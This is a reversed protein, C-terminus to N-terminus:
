VLCPFFPFEMIWLCMKGEPRGMPDSPLYISGMGHDFQCSNGRACFGKTDFDRCRQRRRRPVQPAGYPRGPPGGPFPPPQPPLGHATAPPLNNFQGAHTLDIPPPPQPPYTTPPFANRPDYNQSALGYSPDTASAGRGFSGGRRPQKFAREGSNPMYASEMHESEHYSRKRNGETRSSPAQSPSQQQELPKKSSAPRLEPPLFSKSELASFLDDVFKPTAGAPLM